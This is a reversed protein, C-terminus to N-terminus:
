KEVTTQIDRSFAWLGWASLSFCIIMAILEATTSGFITWYSFDEDFKNILCIWSNNLVHITIPLVLSRTKWFIYGFIVGMIATSAMQAPNLHIISFLFASILITYHAAVGSKHLYGQIAGRFIAEELIPAFLCVMLTGWVGDMMDSFFSENLNPLSITDSMLHIGLFGIVGAMFLCITRFLPLRLPQLLQSLDTMHLSRIAYRLTLSNASLAILLVAFDPVGESSGHGRSAIDQVITIPFIVAMGCLIQLLLNVGLLALPKKIISLKM